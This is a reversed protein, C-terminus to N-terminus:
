VEDLGYRSQGGLTLIQHVRLLQVATLQELIVSDKTIYSELETKLEEPMTNLGKLGFLHKTTVQGHMHFKRVVYDM